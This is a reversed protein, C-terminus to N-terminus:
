IPSAPDESAPRPHWDPASGVEPVQGSEEGPPSYAEAIAKALEPINLATIVENESIFEDAEGMEIFGMNALHSIKEAISADLPEALIARYLIDALEGRTLLEEGVTDVFIDIGKAALLNVQVEYFEADSLEDINDPLEETIGIVRVLLDVFKAKAMVEEQAFSDVRGAFLFVGVVAIITVVKRIGRM